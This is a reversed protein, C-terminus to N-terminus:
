AFGKWRWKPAWGLQPQGALTKDASFQVIKIEPACFLAVEIKTGTIYIPNKAPSLEIFEKPFQSKLALLKPKIPHHSFNLQWQNQIYEDATL